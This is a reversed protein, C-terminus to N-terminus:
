RVVFALQRPRQAFSDGFDGLFQRLLRGHRRGARSASPRSWMVRGAFRPAKNDEHSAVSRKVETSLRGTRQSHLRSRTAPM